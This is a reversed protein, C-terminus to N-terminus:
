DSLFFSTSKNRGGKKKVKGSQDAPATEETDSGDRTVFFDYEQIPVSNVIEKKGKSGVLGARKNEGEM